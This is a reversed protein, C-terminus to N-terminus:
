GIMDKVYSTVGSWDQPTVHAVKVDPLVAKVMPCGAFHVRHIHPVHEAASEIQAPSDDVFIVPAQMGASLAQLAPGKPGANAVVPSVMGHQLLNAVRDAHRRQPVNSLVVVQSIESLATLASMAGIIAPQHRTKADIFGHVLEFTKEANAVHNGQWIAYELSYETLRLEWKQAHLYESFPVAFQVLVEDADVILLPCNQDIKLANIQAITETQM